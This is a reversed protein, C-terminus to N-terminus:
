PGEGEDPVYRYQGGSDNAIRRMVEEGSRDGFAITNIKTRRGKSNLEAILSPLVETQQGDTMFYVVDPRPKLKFAQEFSSGPETGGDANLRKVWDRARFKSSEDAKLWNFAGLMPIAHDSFAIVLFSTHPPLRNISDVLNRRLTVIRDMQQMSGSVDVIYVFRTGRSEVGFFSTGSGGGELVEGPSFEDGAGGLTDIAGPDALDVAVSAVDVELLDSPSEIPKALSPDTPSAFADVPTEDLKTLEEESLTAFEIEVGRGDGRVPPNIVLLAAVVLFLAHLFLSVAPGIVNEPKRFATHHSATQEVLEIPEAGSGSFKPQSTPQHNM